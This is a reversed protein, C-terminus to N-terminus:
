SAVCITTSVWFFWDAGERLYNQHSGTHQTGGWPGLREWTQIAEGDTKQKTKTARSEKHVTCPLCSLRWSSGHRQKWRYVLLQVLTTREMDPPNMPIQVTSLLLCSAFSTLSEDQTQKGSLSCDIMNFLLPFAFSKKTKLHLATRREWPSFYVRWGWLCSRSPFFHM